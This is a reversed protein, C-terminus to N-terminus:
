KKSLPRYFQIPPTEPTIRDFSYGQERFYAVVQPLVEPTTKRTSNDHFLLILNRDLNGEASK